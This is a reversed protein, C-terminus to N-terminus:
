RRGCSRGTPGSGGSRGCVPVPRLEDLDAQAQEWLGLAHQLLEGLVGLAAPVFAARATADGRHLPALDFEARDNWRGLDVREVLTLRRGQRTRVSWGLAEGRKWASSVARESCGALLATRGRGPLARRGSRWDSDVALVAGVQALASPRGRSSTRAAAERALLDAVLEVARGQGRGAAYAELTSRLREIWATLEEVRREAATRERIRAFETEVAAVQAEEALKHEVRAAAIWSYSCLWCEPVPEPEGCAVCGAAASAEGIGEWLRRALDQKERRARREQQGRWCSMCLPPSDVDGRPMGLRYVGAVACPECRVQLGTAYSRRPVEPVALRIQGSRATEVAVALPDPRGVHATCSGRGPVASVTQGLAYCHPCFGLGAVRAASLVTM